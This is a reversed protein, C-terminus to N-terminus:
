VDPTTSQMEADHAPLRASASSTVSCNQTGAAVLVDRDKGVDGGDVDTEFGNGNEDTFM